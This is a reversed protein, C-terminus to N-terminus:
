LAIEQVLPQRELTLRAGKKISTTLGNNIDLDGVLLSKLSNKKGDM